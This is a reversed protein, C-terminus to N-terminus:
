AESIAKVFGAIGADGAGAGTELTHVRSIKDGDFFVQVFESPFNVVKGTAPIVGMGVSSLDLDNTFTGSNQVKLEVVDDEERISEISSRFDSFSVRVLKELALWTDMDM